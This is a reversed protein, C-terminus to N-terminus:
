LLSRSIHSSRLNIVYRNHQNFDIAQSKVWLFVFLLVLGPLVLYSNLTLVRKEVTKRGWNLQRIGIIKRIESFRM